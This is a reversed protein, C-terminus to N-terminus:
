HLCAITIVSGASAVRRCRKDNRLGIEAHQLHKEVEVEMEVEWLGDLACAAYLKFGGVGCHAGNKQVVNQNKKLRFVTM